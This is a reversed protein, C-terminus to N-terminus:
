MGGHSPRSRYEADEAIAEKRVTDICIVTEALPHPNDILLEEIPKGEWMAALWEATYKTHDEAWEITGTAVALSTDISIMWEVDGGYEIKAVRFVGDDNETCWDIMDGFNAHDVSETPSYTTYITTM